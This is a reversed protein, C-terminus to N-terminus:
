EQPLDAPELYALSFRDGLGTYVPDSSGQNDVFCLDGAFGIYASRVIRNLNQCIAGGVLLVNDVSLDLFLGYATQYVAIQCNQGGLAVTLEQSPVARLPVVQM